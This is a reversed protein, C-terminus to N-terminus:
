TDHLKSQKSPTMHTLSMGTTGRPHPHTPASSGQTGPEARQSIDESGRRPGKAQKWVLKAQDLTVRSCMRYGLLEWIEAGMLSVQLAPSFAWQQCGALPTPKTKAQKWNTQPLPRSDANRVLEWATAAAPATRLAGAFSSHLATPSGQKLKVRPALQGQLINTCIWVARRWNKRKRWTRVLM